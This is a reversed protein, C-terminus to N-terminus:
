DFIDIVKGKSDVNLDWRTWLDVIL